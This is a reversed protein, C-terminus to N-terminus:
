GAIHVQTCNCILQGPPSLTLLSLDGMGPPSSPRRGSLTLPAELNLRIHHHLKRVITSLTILWRLFLRGAPVAKAAFRLSAILSLLKRKTAKHAKRWNHLENLLSQLKEPPHRIEQSVSVLEIGLFTLTNSPAELKYHAVPIGLNCCVGLFTDM